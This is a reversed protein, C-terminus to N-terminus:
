RSLGQDSHETSKRALRGPNDRCVLSMASGAVSTTVGGQTVATMTAEIGGIMDCRVLLVVSAAPTIGGRTVDILDSTMVSPAMGISENTTSARAVDTIAITTDGLAVDSMGAISVGVVHRGDSAELMAFRCAVSGEVIVVRIM